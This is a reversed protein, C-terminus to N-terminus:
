HRLTRATPIASPRSRAGDLRALAAARLAAHDRYRADICIRAGAPGLIELADPACRHRATAWDIAEVGGLGAEEIGEDDLVLSRMLLQRRVLAVVLAVAVAAVTVLSHWSSPATAVALPVGVLVVGGIARLGLAPDTRRALRM